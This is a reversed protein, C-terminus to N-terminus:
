RSIVLATCSVQGIGRRSLAFIIPINNLEACRLVQGLMKVPNIHAAPNPKVDPAVIIFKARHVM